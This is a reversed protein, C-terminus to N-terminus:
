SSKPATSSTRASRRSWRWVGAGRRRSMIRRPVVARRDSPESRCQRCRAPRRGAGQAVRGFQNSRRSSATASSRSNRVAAQRRQVLEAPYQGSAARNMVVRAVALQGEASEGRAEFYVATALCNTQEDLPAGASFKDVLAYLPWGGKYLWAAETAIAACSVTVSPAPRCPRAHTTAAHGSRLDVPRPMAGAPRAVAAASRPRVNLQPWVRRASSGIALM